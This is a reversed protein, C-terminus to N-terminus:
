PSGLIEVEYWVTKHHPGLEVHAQGQASGVSIGQRRNGSEDLPYCKVREAPVPLAITAPIGECLIPERGWQDGLTVRREGLRKLTADQNQVWGTAAVLIRGPRDFGPGDIATMSVTAWDLRTAGITLLVDGLAFTRGRVFGTFLKTRRTNVTYYGADKRSVDWCIEGTDSVFRGNDPWHPKTEAVLSSNAPRDNLDLSTGCVLTHLPNRALEDATLGWATHVEHLKRREDEWSLHFIAPRSAPAVDGRVFMAVCAPMHALQATQSKIDFFNEIRRPEFGQGHSYAFSCIGDWRQFAGFAAIMPFGEAAYSNPSPHNYESVTYPKGAVRPVALLSLTNGPSNVLAIDNIYWDKQDWPRGPFTPHEWYAHNDLYDFEAQIHVPSYGLQTGSILSRVHLQEKLFRNMGRWYSRETDCLFDCFDSASPSPQYSRRVTPVSGNELRDNPGLGVIGGPRLSVNALEYAGGHQFRGFSIRANADDRDAVFTFRHQRWQPAAEVSTSLGLLEWPAHSMQCSVECPQVADSRIQYTLTYTAGKTIRLGNQFFLPNWPARGADTAMVRFVRHRDPSNGPQIVTEAKTQDDREVHWVEGLPQSFGGDKLMEEGLMETTGVTWAKRLRETSGYKTRLWTNWMTRLTTAYPDPLSDLKGWSWVAFLADENSIEVMAIAPEDTYATKTYPNVHTMLDRAYQKQLEIMRPEFNDVGKDSEPRGGQGPFGEADGLQRGVHLGLDVYIGHLKLQYILYDVRELRKPDITLKNPNDGWISFTDMNHLRVCNIGLRAFRAALRQAQEHTPFCGDFVLNTGWFRIPGVDTALHGAQNRIFGHNGAPPSLWFSINTINQPADYSIVFPFLPGEGAVIVSWGSMLLVALSASIRSMAARVMKQHSM